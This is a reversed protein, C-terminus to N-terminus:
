MLRRVLVKGAALVNQGFDYTAGVSAKGGVKRFASATVIGVLIETMQPLGIEVIRAFMRQM